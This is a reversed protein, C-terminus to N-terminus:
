VCCCTKASQLGYQHLACPYSCYLSTVDGVATNQVTHQKM